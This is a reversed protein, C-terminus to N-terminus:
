SFIEDLDRAGHLVRLIEVDNSNIIRYIILYNGEPFSRADHRLEKRERGAKPTQALMEFCHLLRDYVSLAAKLNDEAIYFLIEDIDAEAPETILYSM